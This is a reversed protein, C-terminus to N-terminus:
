ESTVNKRQGPKGSLATDGADLLLIEAIYDTYHNLKFNSVHYKKLFHRLGMLASLYGRTVSLEGKLLAKASHKLSVWLLRRFYTSRLPAPLNKVMVLVQNRTCYRIHLADTSSATGGGVHYVVATPVYQCRYGALQARFSLDVDEYWMFFDEDLLGIEDFLERRYMAAGACAGFIPRPHQFEQGDARGEGVDFAAGARTFGIGISNIINPRDAFLMKSSCFGVSSNEDLTKELESLWQPAARTDNNLLAIYGGTSRRIGENVAAAFGRNSDFRLLRVEPYSRTVFVDTGDTSGDDVLLIEDPKRIQSRLAELCDALYERGNYTPIVVSITGSKERTLDPEKYVNGTAV